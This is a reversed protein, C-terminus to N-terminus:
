APIPLNPKLVKDVTKDVRHIGLIGCCNHIKTLVHVICSLGTGELWPDGHPTWDPHGRRQARQLATVAQSPTVLAGGAVAGQSVKPSMGAHKRDALVATM